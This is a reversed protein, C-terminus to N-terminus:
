NGVHSCQFNEPSFFAYYSAQKFTCWTVFPTPPNLVSPSYPPFFVWYIFSTHSSSTHASNSSSRLSQHCKPSSYLAWARLYSCAQQTRPVALHATYYLSCSYGLSSYSLLDSLYYHAQGWHGSHHSRSQTPLDWSSIWCLLSTSQDVNQWSREPRHSSYPM